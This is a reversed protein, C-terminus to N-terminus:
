PSEFSCLGAPVACTQTSMAECNAEALHQYSSVDTLRTFGAAFDEAIATRTGCTLSANPTLLRTMAARAYLHGVSSDSQPRFSAGVDEYHTIGEDFTTSATKWQDAGYNSLMLYITGAGSTARVFEEQADVTEGSRTLTRAMDYCDLALLGIWQTAEEMITEQDYNLCSINSPLTLSEDYRFPGGALFLGSLAEGMGILGRTYNAKLDLAKQYYPLVSTLREQKNDREARDEIARGATNGMLVYFLAMDPDDPRQAVVAEFAALADAYANTAYAAIAQM